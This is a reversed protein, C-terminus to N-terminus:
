KGAPGSGDQRLHGPPIRIEFRAGRGPTGCETITMGTVALIDRSLFLGWGIGKGFGMEFIKEKELLPIGCGNDEVVLIDDEGSKEVSVRIETASDGHLVTNEFLHYFVKELQPDALVSAKLTEAIIRVNNLEITEAVRVALNHINQWRPPEVAINQYDKAIQFQRRIKNLATQEKEIFSKLKPDEIMMGLLETYGLIATMQNLVDHRTISGVFQIKKELFAVRAKLDAIEQEKPPLAGAPQKESSM